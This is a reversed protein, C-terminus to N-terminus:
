EVPVFARCPSQCVIRLRQARGCGECLAEDAGGKPAVILPWATLPWIGSRLLDPNFVSM